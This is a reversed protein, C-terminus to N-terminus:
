ELAPRGLGHVVEGRVVTGVVELGAIESPDVTFPDRDVITLDADFGAALRGRRDEHHAGYAVGHTFISLAEAVSLREEERSHNVAAHVGLLPALATVTSDSGGALTVGAARLSRLPDVRQMREPGLSDLYTAHPWVHNFAPQLSVVGGVARVRAPHDPALLQAHEIRHRADPRSVSAQAAEYMRLAQDVARDGVAHFAIQLGAHHAALVFGSLSADNHYLSGFEAADDAYGELLAATRVDVDGDLACAHCGGIRRLGLARVSDLDFTQPYAVTRVPLDDEVALLTRVADLDDLAHVTTCGNRVARAAAAHFASEYGVQRSFAAYAGHTAAQTAPGTLHGTPTGEDDVDVGTMGPLAELRSLAAGNAYSAHGTVHRLYVPHHPAAADLEARTPPRGEALADPDVRLGLVLEGRPTEAAARRVRALLATLDPVDTADIASELFGTATLHVHADGLGPLVTAGGLDLPVVGPPLAARLESWRGLAAIRGEALVIADVPGGDHVVTPFRGGALVRVDGTRMM